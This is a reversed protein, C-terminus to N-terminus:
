SARLLSFVGHRCFSPPVSWCGLVLGAGHAVNAVPFIGFWTTAICVFFWIIFLQITREDVAEHFRDDHRSVVWLLGFLGYVVGSLGIGGVTFAFELPGSGFAFLIILALTKAHGYVEEILTGFVWLWYVNFLLHLVGGHPFMCTVLRWLEGRRIM